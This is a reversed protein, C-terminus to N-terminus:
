PCYMCRRSFSFFLAHFDGRGGDGVHQDDFGLHKAVRAAEEIFAEVLFGEILGGAGVVLENLVVVAAAGLAHQAPQM